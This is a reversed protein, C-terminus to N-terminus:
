TTNHSGPSFPGVTVDDDAASPQPRDVTCDNMAIGFDTSSVASSAYPCRASRVPVKEDVPFMHTVGFVIGKRCLKYIECYQMVPCCKYHQVMDRYVRGACIITITYSTYGTIFTVNNFREGTVLAAVCSILTLMWVTLFYPVGLDFLRRCFAYLGRTFAACRNRQRIIGVISGVLISTSLFIMASAFVVHSTPDGWAGHFRALGQLIVGWLLAHAFALYWGVYVHKWIEVARVTFISFASGASIMCAAQYIYGLAPKSQLLKTDLYIITLVVSAMGIYRCLMYFAAFGWLCGRRRRIIAWDNSLSIVFDWSSLGSLLHGIVSAADNAQLPLQVVNTVVLSWTLM